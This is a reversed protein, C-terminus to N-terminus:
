RSLAEQYTSQHPPDAAILRQFVSRDPYKLFADTIEQYKADFFTKVLISRPELKKRIDGIAEVSRLINDLGKQSETALLDVGDFHYTYFAFRFSQYRSNMLEDAINFRSYDSSSQQWGSSYSSGQALNCINLAKQFYNTGSLETYTELDFGVILYAYFDLFDTLPDFQFEDHVMRQNPLYSFDWVQDLIRLVPSAKDTPDNGIYVIRQSGIFVTATYRGDQSGTQFFINISCKIKEQGFDESSWRISNLYREVDTKFDRLNDRQGSSIKDLNVTVDCNLEQTLASSVASCLLVILLSTKLNM